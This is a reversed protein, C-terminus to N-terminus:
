LGEKICIRNIHLILYLKEEEPLACGWKRQIHAAIEEACAAVDPFEARISDYMQSNGSAITKSTHIRGFLYQMHTAYRSYNFSDRQVILNFHNEVMETIDELMESDTCGAGAADPASDGDVRANLLNIAIGVAEAGPLGVQFEKQIRKVAYQGIRYEAPYLQEVDYALPMKVRINRRAREITFAIHDALTLIANPSLTYPLENRAIDLLRASFDLVDPPLDRLVGLYREDVNYFTREVQALPIERPLTGFGIGKGMAIMEQGTSDLCIVANNNIKRLGRM